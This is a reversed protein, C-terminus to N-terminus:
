RKRQKNAQIKQKRKITPKNVSSDTIGVSVNGLSNYLEVHANSLLQNKNVNNPDKGNEEGSIEDTERGEVNSPPVIVLKGESVFEDESDSEDSSSVELDELYELGEHVNLARKAAIDFNSFLKLEYYFNQLKFNLSSFSCWTERM